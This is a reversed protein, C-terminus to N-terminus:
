HAPALLIGHLINKLYENKHLYTFPLRAGMVHTEMKRRYSVRMERKRPHSIGTSLAHRGKEEDSVSCNGSETYHENSVSCNGSETYHEDSVVCLAESVACLAESVSCSM